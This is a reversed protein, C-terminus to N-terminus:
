RYVWVDDQLSNDENWFWQLRMASANVATVVSYGFHKNDFKEVYVSPYLEVVDLTAGAAGTTYHVPAGRTCTGNAVACTRMFSHYHGAFVVDVRYQLLLPELIARLGNAVAYDGSYMETEYLPRHLGLVVWPTATRDVRALDRALWQGMPAAASPDHESSLMIVHVSGADFSYWFVGNGNAPMRFRRATPVGCEGQSDHWGNWFPPAWPRTVGSPDHQGGTVYDYEHNGVCVLYPVRRTIPQLLALWQDWVRVNGLAYGLDGVHLVYDVQEGAAIPQAVRLTTDVAGPMGTVGMDGYVVFRSSVSAGPAHATTFSLEEGVAGGQVPRAYYRTGPQLGDVHAHHFYGPFRWHDPSSTNAPAECLEAADYTVSEQATVNAMDYVGPRTGLQLVAAPSSTNSTWSVTMQTQAHAGYAVHMQYASQAPWQVTNSTALLQYPAPDRYMRFQYNCNSRFVLFTLNGAGTTYRPDDDVYAWELWSGLADGVCYLAIWDTRQPNSVGSWSIVVNTFDERPWAPSAQMQIQSSEFVNGVWEEAFRTEERRQTSEEMTHRLGLSRQDSLDHPRAVCWLTAFVAVVLMTVHNYALQAM